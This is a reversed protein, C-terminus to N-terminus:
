AAGAHQHQQEWIYVSEIAETEPIGDRLYDALIEVM